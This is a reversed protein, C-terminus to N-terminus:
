IQALEGHFTFLAAYKPETDVSTEASNMVNTLVTDDIYEVHRFMRWRMEAFYLEFSTRALTLSKIIDLNWCENRSTKVFCIGAVVSAGANFM